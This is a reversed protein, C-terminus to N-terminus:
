RRSTKLRPLYGLLPKKTIRWSGYRKPSYGHLVCVLNALRFNLWLNRRLYPGKGFYRGLDSRFDRRLYPGNRFDCRFYSRFNSRFYLSLYTGLDGRFYLGLYTGLDGRFYLGLNLRLDCGIRIPLRSRFDCRFFRRSRNGFDRRFFRWPGDRFDSRVSGPWYGLDCGLLGRSGYRFDCRITWLLLILMFAQVRLSSSRM